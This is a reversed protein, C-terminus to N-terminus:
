NPKGLLKVAFEGTYNVVAWATKTAPDIGYSGLEYGPQYPGSVFRKAHPKDGDPLNADVANIWQGDAGKTALVVEGSGLKEPSVDASPCSMALAFADAHSVGLDSLGWLTLVDSITGAAPAWGTDVAKVLAVGSGTKATSANVGGLIAAQTGVYGTEGNAVAKATDDRVITYPQGQPIFFERGNLSCGISDMKRWRDTLRPTKTISKGAEQPDAAYYDLTVRPGDVTCIYYGVKATDESIPMLKSSIPETPRPLNTSAAQAVLQRVKAAGSPATVLGYFHLHEHGCIYYHAGYAALAVLFCDQAARKEALAVQQPPTLTAPDLGDGDGLDARTVAGGLLTDHHHSGLVNKHGFVFVHPPRQPDSLRSNIWPQQQGITSTTTNGSDDFQDLLILRADEYDFSYTLGARPIGNFSLEPSQFNTGVVFPDPRTKADPAMKEEVGLGQRFSPTANNVGDRTQPFVRPFEAGSGNPGGWAADHNGRLPYFGIGANYLGQAYLARADLNDQSSRNVTDGVAVVFKVGHRIFEPDIQKLIGAPITNPNLGDDDVRWQTDALIGFRWPAAEALPGLLVSLAFALLLGALILNRSRPVGQKNQVSHRMMSTVEVIM